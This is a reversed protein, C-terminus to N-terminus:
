GVDFIGQLATFLSTAASLPLTITVNEESAGSGGDDATDDLPILFQSMIYGHTDKYYVETWEGDTGTVAQVITGVPLSYLYPLSTSATRRMKVPAGNESTVMMQVMAADDGEDTNQDYNYDIRKLFAVYAWGDGIKSRAFGTKQSQANLVYDTDEDVLGIHYYDKPDGGIYQAPLDYYKDGPVRVKFAAMGPILIGRKRADNVTFLQSVYERAIRNSGHYISMNHQKYAWVFAGSCDVAGIVKGDKIYWNSGGSLYPVHCKYMEQFDSILYKVDLSM